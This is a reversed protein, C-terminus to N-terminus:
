RIRLSTAGYFPSVCGYAGLCIGSAYGRRAFAQVRSLTVVKSVEDILASVDPTLSVLGGTEILELLPVLEASENNANNANRRARYGVKLM